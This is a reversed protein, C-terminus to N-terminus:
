LESEVPTASQSNSVVTHQVFFYKHYYELFMFVEFPSAHVLVTLLGCDISLIYELCASTSFAKTEQDIDLFSYGTGIESFKTPLM